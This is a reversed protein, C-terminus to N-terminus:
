KVLEFIAEGCNIRAIMYVLEDAAKCCLEADILANARMNQYLNIVLWYHANLKWLYFEADLYLGRKWCYEYVM